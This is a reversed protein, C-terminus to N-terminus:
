KKPHRGAETGAVAPAAVEVSAAAGADAAASSSYTGENQMGLCKSSNQSSSPIDAEAVALLDAVTAVSTM